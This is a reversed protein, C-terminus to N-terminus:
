GSQIEVVGGEITLGAPAAINAWANAQLVLKGAPRVVTAVGLTAEGGSGGLATIEITGGNEILGSGRLAPTRDRSSMRITGQNTVTQNVVMSSNDRIEVLALPSIVLTNNFVANDVVVNVGAPIVVPTDYSGTLVSGSNGVTLPTARSQVGLTAFGLYVSFLRARITRATRSPYMDQRKM